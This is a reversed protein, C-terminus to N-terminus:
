VVTETLFGRSLHNLAESIAQYRPAGNPVEASQVGSSAVAYVVGDRCELGSDSLPIRYNKMFPPRVFQVYSESIRVRTVARHATVYSYIISALPGVASGDIRHILFLNIKM